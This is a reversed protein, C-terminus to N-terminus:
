EVVGMCLGKNKIAKGTTTQKNKMALCEARSQEATPKDKFFSEPKLHKEIDTFTM